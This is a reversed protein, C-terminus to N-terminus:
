ARKEVDICKFSILVDTTQKISEEEFAALYNKTTSLASHGLAESIFETSVGSNKLITAFSHRAYYTTIPKAIDLNRAIQKMHDNILHTVLKVTNLIEIASMGDKLHPFIFTQPSKKPQGWKLIIRRTDEKLAIRITIPNSRRTRITKSRNFVIFDGSINEYKLLCLDKINIGNCLYILIWYDRSLEDMSGPVAAYNYISAIEHMTLAKKINKGTPIVYRRKGFPYDKSELLGDEILKNFIARLSRLYIGVTTISKGNGVFWQEYSRLFEPTIHDFKLHQKFKHLSRCASEYSTATGVQENDYLQSIYEEFASKVDTLSAAKPFFAIEFKSFSFTAIADCCKQANGLIEFLELGMKRLEGKAKGSSILKWDNINANHGTAYYKRLGKYTIRLKLPYTDNEKKRRKDPAISAIVNNQKM